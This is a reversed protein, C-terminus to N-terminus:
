RLDSRNFEMRQCISRRRTHRFVAIQYIQLGEKIQKRHDEFGVANAACDFHGALTIIESRHVEVSLKLKRRITDIENQKNSALVRDVGAETITASM